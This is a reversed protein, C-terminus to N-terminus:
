NQELASHAHKCNDFHWRKMATVGGETGCHPCTVKEHVYGKLAASIRKRHQEKKPKGKNHSAVYSALGALMRERSKAGVKARTESSVHRESMRRAREKRCAIRLDEPLLSWGPMRFDFSPAEPFLVFDLAHEYAHTYEDWDVLNWDDDPGGRSRAIRHHIPM